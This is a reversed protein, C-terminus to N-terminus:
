LGARRRQHHDIRDLGHPCALNFGRGARHRLHAARRLRQDAECFGAPGAQDEDPMDGLIPLDGAGPNHLVHDIRHNGELTFAPM